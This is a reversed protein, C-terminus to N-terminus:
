TKGPDTFTKWCGLHGGGEADAFGPRRVGDPDGGVGHGDRRPLPQRTQGAARDLVTRGSRPASCGSAVGGCVSCRGHDPYGLMATKRTM